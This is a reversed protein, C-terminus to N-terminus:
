TTSQPTHQIWEKGEAAIGELIHLAHEFGAAALNIKAFSEPTEESDLKGMDSESVTIIRPEGNMLTLELTQTLNKMGVHVSSVADFRFNNREYTDTMAKEFDVTTGVERVGDHTVLFVRIDYRSYRWPGRAARKRKRNKAPTQLVAHAIVDTWKLKYHRLAEDILCVRDSRLWREMEEESPLTDNLYTQWRRYADLRAQFNDDHEGYEEIVRRRESAIRHWGRAAFSGSLLAAPAAATTALPWSQMATVILYVVAAGLVSLSGTCWTITATSARYGDRYALLTENVWRDRVDRVLYRILWNVQDATHGNDRHLLIVENCLTSRIAETSALWPAPNGPDPAYKHAYHEFSRAVQRAFGSDRMWSNVPTGFYDRDKARLREALYLWAHANRAGVYGAPLALAAALIGLAAGRSLAASGLVAVATILVASWTIAGVVDVVSTASPTPRRPEPPAPTPHFYAWARGKRDGALKHDKAQGTTEDWIREKARGTLILDLHQLIRARQEPPLDDLERHDSDTTASDTLDSVVRLAGTWDDAPFHRAKEKIQDLQDSESQTLDRLLRNSLIALACHFNAQANDFGSSIADTILDRARPAVGNDLCRVGVKHKESAPAEASVIFVQSNNVEDAQIGVISGDGAINVTRRPEPGAHREEGYTM